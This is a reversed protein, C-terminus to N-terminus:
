LGAGKEGGQGGSLGNAQVVELMHSHQAAAGKPPDGQHLVLPPVEGELGEGLRVDDLRPQLHTHEALVAVGREPTFSRRACTSCTDVRGVECRLVLQVCGQTRVRRVGGGGFGVEGWGVGGWGCGWVGVALGGGGLLVDLTLPRQHRLHAAGEQHVQGGGELCTVGPLKQGVLWQLRHWWRLQRAGASGQGQWVVGQARGMEIVGHPGLGM